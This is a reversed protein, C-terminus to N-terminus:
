QEELIEFWSLPGLAIERVRQRGRPDIAIGYLELGLMTPRCQTIRYLKPTFNKRSKRAAIKDAVLASVEAAATKFDSLCRDAWKSEREISNWDSVQRLLPANLPRIRTMPLGRFRKRSLRLM